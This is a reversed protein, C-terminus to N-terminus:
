LAPIELTISYRDVTDEILLQYRDGYILDLRRKVNKLGIGGNENRTAASAKTNSICVHLHSLNMVVNINIENKRDTFHSVHKFANEVLPLMLLPPVSFNNLPSDCTVQVTFNDNFRLQQLAAYNKLYQIEKEIDIAPANCEYLQYRLM